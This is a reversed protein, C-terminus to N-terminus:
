NDYKIILLTSCILIYINNIYFFHTKGEFPLIIAQTTKGYFDDSYGNDMDDDNFNSLISDIQTVPKPLQPMSVQPKEKLRLKKLIQNKIYEIRLATFEEPTITYEPVEYKEGKELLTFKKTCGVCASPTNESEDQLRAEVIPAIFSRKQRHVKLSIGVRCLAFMVLLILVFKFM